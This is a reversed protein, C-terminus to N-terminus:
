EEDEEDEEEEDSSADSSDFGLRHLLFAMDMPSFNDSDFGYDGPDILYNLDHLYDMDEEGDDDEGVGILDNLSWLQELADLMSNMNARSRRRPPPPPRHHIWAYSGPEVTHQTFFLFLFM